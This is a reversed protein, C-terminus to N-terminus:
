YVHLVSVGYKYYVVYNASLQDNRYDSQTKYVWMENTGIYIGYYAIVHKLGSDSITKRQVLPKDFLM